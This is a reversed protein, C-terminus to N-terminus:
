VNRLSILFLLKLKDLKSMFSSQHWYIHTFKCVGYYKVLWWLGMRTARTQNIESNQQNDSYVVHIVVIYGYTYCDTM